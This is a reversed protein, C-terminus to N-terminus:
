WAFSFDIKPGYFAAEGPGEEFPIGSQVLVDRLLSKPRGGLMLTISMSRPPTPAKTAPRSACGFITQGSSATFGSTCTWIALCESVIQEETCYIHADNMTMARVRLLGSISGSDEYRLNAWIRGVAIPARPLQAKQFRFHPPSPPREDAASLLNGRTRGIGANRAGETALDEETSTSTSASTSTHRSSACKLSCTRPTIRSIVPRSTSIGNPSPPTVVRQYGAEFELERM